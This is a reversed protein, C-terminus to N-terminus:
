NFLIEDVFLWAPNGKGPHNEPLPGANHVIVKIQRYEGPSFDLKYLQRGELPKERLEYAKSALLQWSNPTLAGWVEIRAPPLIWSNWATFGSVKVSQLKQPLDWSGQFGLDTKFGLWNGDKLDESGAQGDTLVLGPAKSGAYEPAPIEKLEPATKFVIGKKFVSLIAPTSPQYDNHVAIAKVTADQKIKLLKRYIPSTKSPESGDLTYHIQAGELAFNMRVTATKEFFVQDCRLIPPALRFEQAQLSWCCTIFVIIQLYKM